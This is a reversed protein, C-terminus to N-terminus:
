GGKPKHDSKMEAAIEKGKQFQEAFYEKVAEPEFTLFTGGSAFHQLFVKGLAYTIAGNLAVQAGAGLLQGVGPIFKGLSAALAPAAALPLVGGVLSAIAARGLDARFEIGFITSLSHLLKMQLSVLAALDLIPLPVLGVAMGGFAYQRIRHNALETQDELTLPALDTDTAEEDDRRTEPNGGEDAM